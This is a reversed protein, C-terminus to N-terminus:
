IPGNNSLDAGHISRLGPHLWHDFHIKLLCRLIQPASREVVFWQGNGVMFGACFIREVMLRMKPKPGASPAM